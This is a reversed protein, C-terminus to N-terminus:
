IELQEWLASPVAELWIATNLPHQRRLRLDQARECAVSHDAFAAAELAPRSGLISGHQDTILAAERFAKEWLAEYAARGRLWALKARRPLAEFEELTTIENV